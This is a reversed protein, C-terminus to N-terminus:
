KKTTSRIIKIIYQELTQPSIIETCVIQTMITEDNGPANPKHMSDEIFMSSGAPFAVKAM